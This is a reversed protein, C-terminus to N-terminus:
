WRIPGPFPFPSPSPWGSGAPVLPALVSFLDLTGIQATANLGVGSFAADILGAFAPQFSLMLGNHSITGNVPVIPLSPAGGTAVISMIAERGVFTGNEIVIGYFIASPGMLDLTLNRVQIVATGSKFEFGGGYVVENYSTSLDIAGELAPLSNLGNQLAQGSLNTVAVGAGTFQQLVAPTLTVNAHGSVIAMSTQAHLPTLAILAVGMAINALHMKM